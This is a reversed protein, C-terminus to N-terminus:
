FKIQVNSKIINNHISQNINDRLIQKELQEYFKRLYNINDVIVIKNEKDLNDVEEIFIKLEGLLNNILDIWEETKRIHTININDGIM